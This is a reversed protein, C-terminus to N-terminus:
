SIRHEKFKRKSLSYNLITVVILKLHNLRKFVLSSVMKNYLIPMIFVFIISFFNNSILNCVLFKNNLTTTYKALNLVKEITLIVKFIIKIIINQM